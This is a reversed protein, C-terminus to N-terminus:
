ESISALMHDKEMFSTEGGPSLCYGDEVPDPVGGCVWESETMKKGRVQPFRRMFVGTPFVAARNKSNAASAVSCKSSGSLLPFLYAKVGLVTEFSVSM